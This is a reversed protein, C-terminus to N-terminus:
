RARVNAKAVKRARWYSALRQEGSIPILRPILIDLTAILSLLVVTIFAMTGLFELLSM